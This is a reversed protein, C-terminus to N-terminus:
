NIHGYKMSSTNSPIEHLTPAMATSSAHTRRCTISSLIWPQKQQVYIAPLRYKAPAEPPAAVTPIKYSVHGVSDLIHQPQHYKISRILWPQIQQKFGTALSPDYSGHSDKNHQAMASMKRLLHLQRPWSWKMQDATSMKRLLRPRNHYSFMGSPIENYSCGVRQKPAVNTLM